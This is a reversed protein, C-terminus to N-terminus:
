RVMNSRRTASATVSPSSRRRPCTWIARTSTPMTRRYGSGMEPCPSDADAGRAAAAHIATGGPNLVSSRTPSRDGQCRDATTIWLSRRCRQRGGFALAYPGMSVVAVTPKGLATVANILEVEAPLDKNATDSGEKPASTQGHRHAGVALIVVDPMAPPPSPARFRGDARLSGCWHGRPSSRPKRCSSACRRPSPCRRTTPSPPVAQPRDQIGAGPEAAVAAKGEPPAGGGLDVGAMAIDGGTARAHMMKLAAPYTYTTFGAAVDDAHPGVIEIKVIDRSLPLLGKENKLLTVSEAALRGSLDAGERAVTRIEVPDEAVYPNDFLGLAFKDRLVRRAAPRSAVRVSEAVCPRRWRPGYGFIATEVDM